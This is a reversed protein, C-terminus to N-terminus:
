PKQGVVTFCVVGSCLWGAREGEELEAWFEAVEALTTEGAEVLGQLHVGFVLQMFKVSNQIVTPACRVDELGAEVLLRHLRRGVYPSKLRGSFGTLLRDVLAQNSSNLFITSSDLESLVVLGEPRTVRVLEQVARAPDGMAMLVREGRCRDFTADDFGLVGADGEVFELPLASGATRRKAEAVMKASIDVGVVRGGPGVRGAVEETDAGTGAGIDLVAHGPQADLLGAILRKVQLEGEITLRADLFRIFYDPNEADVADFSTPDFKTSM